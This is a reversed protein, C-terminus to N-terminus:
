QGSLVVTTTHRSGGGVRRGPFGDRGAYAPNGWLADLALCLLLAGYLLRLRLNRFVSSILM